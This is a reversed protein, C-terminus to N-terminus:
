SQPVLPNINWGVEQSSTQAFPYKQRPQLGASQIKRRMAELRFARDVVDDVASTVATEKSQGIPKTMFPEKPTVYNPKDSIVAMTFPNITYERPAQKRQFHQEKHVKEEFIMMQHVPNKLVAIPIGDKKAGGEMTLKLLNRLYIISNYIIIIILFTILSSRSQTNDLANIECTLLPPSRLKKKSNSNIM